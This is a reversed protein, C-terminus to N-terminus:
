RRCPSIRACRRMRWMMISRPPQAASLPCASKAIQRYLDDPTFSVRTITEARPFTMTWHRYEPKDLPITLGYQWHYELGNVMNPMYHDSGIGADPQGWYDSKPLTCFPAINEDDLM